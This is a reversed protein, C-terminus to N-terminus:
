TVILLRCQSFTALRVEFLDALQVSNEFIRGNHGDKVLEDLSFWLAFIHSFSRPFFNDSRLERVLRFKSRMGATRMWVYRCDEDAFGACVFEFASM